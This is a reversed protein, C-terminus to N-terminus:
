NVKRKGSFLEYKRFDCKISGNYLISKTAPKLGIKNFYEKSSSIIWAQNGPFHHKLREGIMEYLSELDQSQLREGYPPNIMITSGNAPIKLDKFDTTEFNIKNLVRANRANAKAMGINRQSIDSAYISKKFIKPEQEDAVAEFLDIDFDAWNEFAYKKRFVGPSTNTAILVAEIPLTGSGCMPDIFDSEGNWGSLLIMGAALVENLPAESLSIRYGRKHLSEGSSDISLTCRNESIHVDIIIDPNTTDVNPRTGTKQRFEDVIADKVKLSAFMSNTFEKSNSVNSYVSFTNGENMIENWKFKRCKIYFDDVSRFLFVDIQKLIRLSTRLQYNARYIMKKDGNFIV